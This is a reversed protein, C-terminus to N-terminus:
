IATRLREVRQYVEELIKDWDDFLGHKVALSIKYGCADTDYEANRRERKKHEIANLEEVSLVEPLLHEIIYKLAMRYHNRLYVHPRKKKFTYYDREMLYTVPDRLKGMKSDPVDEKKEDVLQAQVIALSPFTSSKNWKFLELCATELQQISYDGLKDAWQEIIMEPKQDKKPNTLWRPAGYLGSLTPIVTDVIKQYKEQRRNEQKIQHWSTM